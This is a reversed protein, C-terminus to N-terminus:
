NNLTTKQNKENHQNTKKKNNNFKEYQHKDIQYEGGGVKHLNPFSFNADVM